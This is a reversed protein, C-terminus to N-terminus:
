AQAATRKRGIHMSQAPAFSAKKDMQGKFKAATDKRAIFLLLNLNLNCNLYIHNGLLIVFVLTSIIFILLFLFLNIIRLLNSISLSGGM